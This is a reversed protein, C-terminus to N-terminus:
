LRTKILHYIYTTDDFTLGRAIEHQETTTQIVIKNSWNRSSEENAHLSISHIDTLKLTLVKSPKNEISITLEQSNIRLNLLPQSKKHKKVILLIILTWILIFVTLYIGNRLFVDWFVSLIFILPFCASVISSGMMSPVPYGITIEGLMDKIILQTNLPPSLKETPKSTNKKDEVVHAVPGLTMDIIPLQLFDILIALQARADKLIYPQCLIPSKKGTIKSTLEIPFLDNSDSDGQVFGLKITDFDSLPYIVPKGLGFLGSKYWLIGRGKDIHAHSSWFGFHM